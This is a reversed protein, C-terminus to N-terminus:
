KKYPPKSFAMKPIPTKFIGNKTHTDRFTMKTRPDRFTMKRYPHPDRFAMKQILHRSFKYFKMEGKGNKFPMARVM